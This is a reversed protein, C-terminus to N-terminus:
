SGAGQAIWDLIKTRQEATLPNGVSPMTDGCPQNNGVSAGAVCMSNVCALTTRDSIKYALFSQGVNGPAVVQMTPANVSATLLNQRARAMDPPSYLFQLTKTPSLLDDLGSPPNGHCITVQSCGNMINTDSLIPYIDTAFSVPNATSAAYSTIATCTASPGGEDGGCGLGQLAALSVTLLSATLM